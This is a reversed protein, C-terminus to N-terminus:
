HIGKKLSIIPMKNESFEVWKQIVAKVLSSKTSITLSNHQRSAPKDQIGYHHYRMSCPGEFWEIMFAFTKNVFMVKM